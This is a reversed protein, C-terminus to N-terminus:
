SVQQFQHRSVHFVRSLTLTLKQSSIHLFLCQGPSLCDAAPQTDTKEAEREEATPNALVPIFVQSCDESKACVFHLHVVLCVLLLSKYYIPVCYVSVGCIFVKIAQFFSSFLSSDVPFTERKGHAQTGLFFISFSFLISFSPSFFSTASLIKYNLRHSKSHVLKCEKM